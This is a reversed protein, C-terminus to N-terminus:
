LLQCVTRNFVLWPMFTLNINNIWWQAAKESGKDVLAQIAIITEISYGGTNEAKGGLVGTELAVPPLNEAVPLVLGVWEKRVWDPAQGPPVAIIKIQAM